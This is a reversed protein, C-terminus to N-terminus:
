NTRPHFDFETSELEVIVNKEVSSGGNSLLYMRKAFLFPVSFGEFLSHENSRKKMLAPAGETLMKKRELSDREIGARKM